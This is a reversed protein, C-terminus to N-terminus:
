GSAPPPSAPACSSTSCCRTEGPVCSWARSRWQPSIPVFAACSSVRASPPCRRLELATFGAGLLQDTVPGSGPDGQRVGALLSIRGALLILAEVTAADAWQLDDVVLIGSRVGGQVDAAVASADGPGVDRGLARRLPLCEMWSLTSLAGGEFVKRGTAAAAARMLTTKGVGAEGILLMPRDDALSAGLTGLERDRGVLVPCIM